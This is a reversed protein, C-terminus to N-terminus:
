TKRLFIARQYCRDRTTKTSVRPMIIYPYQFHHTTSPSQLVLTLLSASSTSPEAHFESQLDAPQIPVSPSLISAPTQQQQVPPQFHRNSQPQQPSQQQAPAQFYSYAQPQPSQQSNQTQVQFLSTVQANNFQYTPQALPQPSQQSNQTEFQFPSTAQANNFQYTPQAVANIQHGLAQFGNQFFQGLQPFGQRPMGLTHWHYACSCSLIVLCFYATRVPNRTNAFLELRESNPRKLRKGKPENKATNSLMSATLSLVFSCYAPSSHIILKVFRITSAVPTSITTTAANAYDEYKFKAAPFEGTAPRAGNKKRFLLFHSMSHFAFLM